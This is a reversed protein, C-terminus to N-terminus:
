GKYGTLEAVTGYKSAASKCVQAYQTANIGLRALETNFFRRRFEDGGPMKTVRQFESLQDFVGCMGHLKSNVIIMQLFKDDDNAMVTFSLCSLLAVVFLKM